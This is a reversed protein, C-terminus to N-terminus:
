KIGIEMKRQKWHEKLEATLAEYQTHGHVVPVWQGTSNKLKALDLPSSLCAVLTDPPSLIQIKLQDLQKQYYIYNLQATEGCEPLKTWDARLTEGLVRFGRPSGAIVASTLAPQAGYQTVFAQPYCRAYAAVSANAGWRV